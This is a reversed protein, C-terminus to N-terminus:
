YLLEDPGQNPEIVIDDPEISGRLTFDIQSVDSNVIQVLIDRAIRLGLWRTVSIHFHINGLGHTPSQNQSAIFKYRKQRDM